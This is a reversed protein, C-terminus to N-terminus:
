NFFRINKLRTRHITEHKEGFFNHAVRARHARDGLRLVARTALCLIDVRAVRVRASRCGDSRVCYQLRQPDLRRWAEPVHGLVEHPAMLDGGHPNVNAAAYEAMAGAAQTAAQYPTIGCQRGQYSGGHHGTVGM